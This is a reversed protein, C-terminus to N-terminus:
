QAEVLWNIAFRQLDALDVNGDIALDAGGCKGCDTLLWYGTFDSFDALDVRHDFNMDGTIVGQYLHAKGDGAGVLVDLYGDSTWDCLFPRSRALGPLDIPMGESEVNIYGSFAPFTDTGINQYFLLQGQTNGTLLDKTGDGDVDYVAPSSRLEPVILDAGDEQVPHGGETEYNFHPPVPGGCGCNQYYHIKGDYAGVILDDMNDNNWDVLVPTAREGVDLNQAIYSVTILSGGDFTPNEESGINLFISVQGDARGVLLDKKEDDDWYVGRPFSGLCGLAPVALDSGNSQAYSYSMFLPNSVTGENLYVRVKGDGTGGGEGIILDNYGDNNWDTYSPVSYGSVQIDSGGAQVIEEGYLNLQAQSQSTPLTLAILVTAIFFFFNRRGIRM